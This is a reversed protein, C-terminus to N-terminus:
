YGSEKSPEAKPPEGNAAETDAPTSVEVAEGRIVSASRPNGSLADQKSEPRAGNESQGAQQDSM